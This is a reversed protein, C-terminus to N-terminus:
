ALGCAANDCEPRWGNAWPCLYEGLKPAKQHTDSYIKYGLKGGSHPHYNIPAVPFSQSPNVKDTCRIFVLRTFDRPSTGPPGRALCKDRTCYRKVSGTVCTTREVGGHTTPGHLDFANDCRFAHSPTIFLFTIMGILLTLKMM